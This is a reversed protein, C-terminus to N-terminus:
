SKDRKLETISVRPRDTRRDTVSRYEIYRLPKVCQLVNKAYKLGIMTTKGTGFMVAFNPRSAYM